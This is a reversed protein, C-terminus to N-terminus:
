RGSPRAARSCSASTRCCARSRTRRSRCARSARSRAAASASRSRAPRRSAPSSPRRRSAAASARPDAADGARRGLPGLAPDVGREFRYQADSEIGLRRGTAATRVPRVPAELLRRDHRPAAPRRAAWSAASASRRRRRRRDGDDGPELAYTKGDLALMTEGDRALRLTIDGTLKAADFVHLPRRPRLHRLQHHRGARQDAAPRDGEAPGAALDPSPGNRVGRIMAAPSSRAPRRRRGRSTSGSRPDPTSRAPCRRSLRRAEPPGPRRRRPRPRHRRRGALRRPQAHGRLRDGARWGSRRRAPAGVAADDPLEIIGDHEEALGLERASCLMGNSVVGRMAAQKLVHRHGPHYDGIPAFVGKMGARANPAGCVIEM